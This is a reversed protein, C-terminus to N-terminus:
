KKSEKNKVFVSCNEIITKEAEEVPVCLPVYWSAQQNLESCYCTFVYYKDNYPSHVLNWGEQLLNKVDRVNVKLDDIKM